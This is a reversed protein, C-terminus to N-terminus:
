YNNFMEHLEVCKDQSKRLSEKQYQVLAPFFDEILSLNTYFNDNKSLPPHSSPWSRVVLDIVGDM